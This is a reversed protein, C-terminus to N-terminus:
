NLFNLSPMFQEGEAGANSMIIINYDNMENFLRVQEYRKESDMM